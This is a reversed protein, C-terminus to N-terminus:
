RVPSKGRTIVRLRQDPWPHLARVSPIWRKIRATMQLWTIGSRQSRRRLSRHWARIVQTRFSGLRRLNTPIAHYGFYGQIVRRLWAGQVPIPKHRHLKLRASIAALRTRMRVKSTRRDLRFKGSRDLGCMHTFGLFDFSEPKGEGRKARDGAAFRGFRILRTKDPHLELGFKSLRERLEVQFRRADSEYQFGMVIDDAFRVVIMEGRAHRRRWRAVWLDFAYHLFVNALLPSITAGQPSGRESWSREGDHLVGANLWKRILRLVRPDGIRHEVFKMLWEHDISDFYARIDADLVWSVKKATLGVALADLANHPGRGRRFGYSFGVFDTEYIANLVEVVARQVLKDELSAIGLARQGGDAKPIMVRRSPKARYAGRHVRAHLDQLRAELGEDYQRWTVGDIGPSADRKLAHFADRLVEVTVHHLLATFRVKRDRKAAERLRELGSSAGQSRCQTRSANLQMAKGEAAGRGEVVEAVGDQPTNNPPKTPVVPEDSKGRGNMIPNRGEAKGVRGTWVAEPPRPIERNECSYTRYTGRTESRAPGSRM